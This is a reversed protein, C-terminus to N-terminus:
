KFKYDNLVGLLCKQWNNKYYKKRFKKMQESYIPVKSIFKKVENLSKCKAIEGLHYKEIMKANYHQEYTNLPILYLPINISIAESLLQHGATSILCYANELDNKFEDSYKKFIINDSYNSKFNEKTYVIISFNHINNLNNLLKVYDQSNEYPSFYVLIHNKKNTKIKLNTIIPTVIKVKRDKIKIPFFSSIIKYDYKPFFYNIRLKEELISFKKIKDDELYLFKSQQEMCILPINAAYSYQAVNPEYDTIVIDPNKGMNQLNISFELFSKFQDINSQEYKELSQEFDIGNSNCSIWPIKIEIVKINKFKKEFCRLNNSTTAVIIENGMSLLFDIVNTQRSLHGNGIGCVGILIKM